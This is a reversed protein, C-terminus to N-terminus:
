LLKRWILGYDTLGWALSIGKKELKEITFDCLKKFIMSNRFEFDVVANRGSASLIKKKDVILEIPAMGYTGIVRDDYKALAFVYNDKKHGLYEHKWQEKEKRRVAYKNHLEIADVIEHNEAEKLTINNSM